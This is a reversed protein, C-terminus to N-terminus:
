RSSQRARLVQFYRRALGSVAAARAVNGGNQALVRETYVREFVELIRQRARSFPLDAAIVAAFAEGVDGGTGPPPPPVSRGRPVPALSASPGLAATRALANGLERVNGPWDYGAYREFFGPPVVDEGALERWLRRALLPVDELRRRLPPLELRGVALRFFLDDRFAGEEVLKDLDRSTTAITRVSVRKVQEDFVRRVEGRELVRVLLAQTELDLAGIEDLVLTGGDALEFLGVAGTRKDGFLLSPATERTSARADFVVFPGTARASAEHIEEALLEKGTGTEGEIVLAVDSAALHTALTYVVRMRASTGIMRGFSAVLPPAQVDATARADVRLVTDGLQISEGGALFAGTVAVENVFTGNTSGLDTVGVRLGTTELALHRRSVLPDGLVLDCARSKGVLVRAPRSPDLAVSRGADPGEVVSVLFSVGAALHPERRETAVDDIDRRRM